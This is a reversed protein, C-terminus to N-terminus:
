MSGRGSDLRDAFPNPRTLKVACKCAATHGCSKRAPLSQSGPSSLDRRAVFSTWVRRLDGHCEPCETPIAEGRLLLVELARGCTSCQLDYIPM